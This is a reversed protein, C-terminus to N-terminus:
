RKTYFGRFEVFVQSQYIDLQKQNHTYLRNLEDNEAKFKQIIRNERLAPDHEIQLFKTLNNREEFWAMILELLSKVAERTYSCKQKLTPKISELSPDDQETHILRKLFNSERIPVSHPIIQSLGRDHDARTILMRLDNLLQEWYINVASLNEDYNHQKEELKENIRIVREFERKYELMQRYIAEKQYAELTRPDSVDIKGADNLYSNNNVTNCHNNLAKTKNQTGFFQRKPPPSDDRSAGKSAPYARKKDDM